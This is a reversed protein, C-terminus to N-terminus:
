TYVAVRNEVLVRCLPCHDLERACPTCCCLHSCPIFLVSYAFELCVCCENSVMGSQRQIPLQVIPKVLHLAERQPDLIDLLEFQLTQNLVVCLWSFAREPRTRIINYLAYTKASSSAHALISETNGHTFLSKEEMLACIMDHERLKVALAVYNDLLIDDMKSSVCRATSYNNLAM